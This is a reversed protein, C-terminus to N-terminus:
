NSFTQPEKWYVRDWEKEQLGKNQSFCSLMSYIARNHPKHALTNTNRALLWHRDSLLWCGVSHGQFDIRGVSARLYDCYQGLGQHYGWSLDQIVLMEIHHRSEQSLYVTFYYATLNYNLKNCLLLHIVCSFVHVRFDFSSHHTGPEM